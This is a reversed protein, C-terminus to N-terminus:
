ENFVENEDKRSRWRKTTSRAESALGVELPQCGLAHAEDSLSDDDESGPSRLTPPSSNQGFRVGLPPTNRISMLYDDTMATDEADFMDKVLRSRRESRRSGLRKKMGARSITERVIVTAM